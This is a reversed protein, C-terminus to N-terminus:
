GFGTAFHGPPVARNYGPVFHQIQKASTMRDSLEGRLFSLGPDVRPLGIYVNRGSPTLFACAIRSLPESDIKERGPPGKLASEPPPSYGPYVKPQAKKAVEPWLDSLGFEEAGYSALCM